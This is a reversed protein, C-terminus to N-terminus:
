LKEPGKDEALDINLPWVKINYKSRLETAWQGLIEMKSPLDDLVLNAGDKAFLQSLEKGIGSAAGTILVNKGKVEYKSM